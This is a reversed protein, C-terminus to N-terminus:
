PLVPCAPALGHEARELLKEKGEPSLGLDDLEKNLTEASGYGAVYGNVRATATSNMFDEGDPYIARYESELENSGRLYYKQHYDEAPYFSAPIIETYVTRGLEAQRQNRSAEAQEKQAENYYFILSAYQRSWSRSTPSHAYWFVELLEDYSILSPDYEIEVAETHDSINVYTPDTTSGGAYGVSTRM